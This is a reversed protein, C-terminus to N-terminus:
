RLFFKGSAAEEAERQKRAMRMAAVREVAEQHGFGNEVLQQVEYAEDAASDDYPQWSARDQDARAPFVSDSFKGVVTTLAGIQVVMDHAVKNMGELYTPSKSIESCQQSVANLANVLVRQRKRIDNYVWVCVAMLAILFVTVVVACVVFFATQM